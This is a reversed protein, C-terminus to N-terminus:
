VALFFLAVPPAALWFEMAGECSNLASNWPCTFHCLTRVVGSRSLVTNTSAWHRRKCCPRWLFCFPSLNCVSAVHHRLHSFHSIHSSSLPSPGGRSSPYPRGLISSMLQMSPPGRKRPWSPLGPQAGVICLELSRSMEGCLATFHVFTYGFSPLWAKLSDIPFFCAGM